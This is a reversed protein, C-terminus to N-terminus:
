AGTPPTAKEDGAVHDHHEVHHEADIDKHLKATIRPILVRKILLQYGLFGVLIDFLISITIEFAIHAPDQLLQLYEQFWGAGAEAEHEHEHAHALVTFAPAFITALTM